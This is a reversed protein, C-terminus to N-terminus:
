AGLYLGSLRATLDVLNSVLPNRVINNVLLQKAFSFILM